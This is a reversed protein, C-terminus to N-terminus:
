RPEAPAAAAPAAPGELDALVKLYEDRSVLGKAYREKLQQVAGWKAWDRPGGLPSNRGLATFAFIAWFLLAAMALGFLVVLAIGLASLAANVLSGDFPFAGGSLTWRLVALVAGLVVLAIMM